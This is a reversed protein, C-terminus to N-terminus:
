RQRLRRLALGALLSVALAELALTLGNLFIDFASYAVPEAFLGAIHPAGADLYTKRLASIQMAGAATYLKCPSGAGGACHNMGFTLRDIASQGFEVAALMRPSPREGDWSAQAQQLAAIAEQREADTQAALLRAIHPQQYAIQDATMRELRAGTVLTLGYFLLVALPLAAHWPSWGRALSRKRSAPHM